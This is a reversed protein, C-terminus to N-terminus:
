AAKAGCRDLHALAQEVQDILILCLDGQRLRGLATDIALFEGDIEAVHTTRAAGALGARLLRLVEGDARRSYQCPDQYLLVDDFARGLIQTQQRIDEDRRDAIGSIVVSRRRAPMTEVARVLALMADRNHGYDAIVTAGRYNFVNFRGPTTDADSTFTGLGCCIADWSIGVGWAAAAAAMVNEVQFGISGGVTIPVASLAVTQRKGGEAAVVQGDEVYVARRGQALHAAIVPNAGSGFFTVQGDCAAAMNAVNPDNANLVAVGDRGVHQVIVQKLAAMDEVTVIHSQGLHDGAGVNTVVAVKCRDFGLGARLVGGRATECVAADIEPHGLVKRVSRPGSCDGSDIRRGAIYVGDSNAMGTRLGGATLLHATLRVTTTKGNTGTVAVLPIRGDEGDTFMSAIIAAGVQQGAGSWPLHMRLDPAAYVEVVGGQQEELPRQVSSCVLDVGCVDLGIMQAAEIARAAVEPHVDGTVDIASGGSALSANNRLIVRAGQQPVSDAHYGQPELCALAIADLRITSLATAQSSSRRPDANAQAVLERVSHLGDGVVQPPDRRAAAVLQHDIVLMRFDDGSLCREVMVGDGHEFALDFAAAVQSRGSVGVTIGNGQRGRNPKVVVPLGIAVAAMWADDADAVVRGPPVPVGAADLLKKTLAKDQSIADGIASTSDIKSAYIRRQRSGWGFMIKSGKTLRRFPIGRAIAAQVIASTGLGLRVSEDLQRLRQLGGALDFPTDALAAGCLAEALEVALEGVAEETYEVVTQFIGPKLTQSTRSFAVPCGAQKQLALAAAELGLVLPPAAGQGLPRLPGIGPFRARLRSEFGTMQDIFDGQQPCSIIAEIATHHSWRNPGRLARTRLVKM